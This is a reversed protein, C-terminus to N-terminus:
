LFMKLCSARIYEQMRVHEEHELLQQQQEYQRNLMEKQQEYHKQINVVDMQLRPNTLIDPVRSVGAGGDTGVANYMYTKKLM